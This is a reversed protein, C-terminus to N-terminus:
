SVVKSVHGSKNLRIINQVFSEVKAEHSVIIVQKINIQELVDKIKDLQDYSFGETPEDLIILDKTAINGVYDNIVKNLALRYALAVATKEGGSLNEFDTDYGNQQLSPTFDEDLRVSLTEDDVLIGFWTIFCENFERYLTHLIQREILASFPTFKDQLWHILETTKLLKEKVIMKEEIEKNVQTITEDIAATEITLQAIAIAIKKEQETQLMLQKKKDDYLSQLDVFTAALEQNEAIKKIAQKKTEILANLEKTRELIIAEKEDILRQLSEKEKQKATYDRSEDLEKKTNAINEQLQQKNQSNIGKEILQALKEQLQEQQNSLDQLQKEKEALQTLKEDMQKLEQQLILQKKEQLLLASYQLKIKELSEENKQKRQKLNHIKGEFNILKEAADTIVSHKHQESVIQFCTPCQNLTTIKEKAQASVVSLTETETIQQLIEALLKDRVVIETELSEKEQLAILITQLENQKEEKQAVSRKLLSIEQNLQLNNNEFFSQQQLSHALQQELQQLEKQLADLQQTLELENKSPSKIIPFAIIKQREIELQQQLQNTYATSKQEQLEITQLQQKLFNIEQQLSRMAVIKKELEQYENQLKLLIVASEQQQKKGDVLSVVFKTKKALSEELQKQKQLLDAIQQEYLLKKIKLEKAILQTNERIRKYKDVNFIKRIIELRQEKDERLIQKMADQPTYVTYRYLVDRTKSVMSLPYGLLELIRTRLEVATCDIKENNVILYGHEQKVTNTRRLVRKIIVTKKQIEFCLEVSGEHKGHRLLQDGSVDAKNFGFLSFEIALLITSKGSGIDGSLLVSGEPFFIQESNYSRINELKLWRLLM